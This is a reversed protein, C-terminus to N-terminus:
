RDLLILSLIPFLTVLVLVFLQVMAFPLAGKLVQAIKEKIIGSIIFLNMGLPPTILALEMNIVFIIGFHVPDIGLQLAIPIIIPGTLLIISTIDLFMGLIIFLINVILLFVLPHMQADLVAQTIQQPIMEFALVYGFVTAGAIILLIMASHGASSVLVDVTDKFTLRKYVFKAILYAYVAGVGAAETPTFIGGYIGVAIIIPFLIVWFASKTASLRESLSVKAPLVVNDKRTLFIGALILAVTLILGPVIGAIFLDRVSEQAISGYVILPISPPIVIGLGGAVAILGMAYRKDYGRRIMEPVLISGIAVATASSSGTIAAFFACALVSVTFLGGRWHGVWAEIMRIMEDIINARIMLESALLFLPISIYLYSDISVYMMQPVAAVINEGAIVYLFVLGTLAMSFAIPVGTLLLFFLTVVAFVVTM